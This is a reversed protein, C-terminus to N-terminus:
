IKIGKAELLEKLKKGRDVPFRHQNLRFDFLLTDDILFTKSADSNTYSGAVLVLLRLGEIEKKFPISFNRWEPTGLAFPSILGRYEILYQLNKYPEYDDKDAIFFFFRMTINRSVAGENCIKITVTDIDPSQVFSIPSSACFKILPEVGKVILIRSSDKVLKEIRKQATDYKLGYQALAEITERKSEQLRAFAISDRYNQTKNAISDRNTIELKNAKQTKDKEHQDDVEQWISLGIIFIFIMALIFGKKTLPYKSEPRFIQGKNRKIILNDTTFFVICAAFIQSFIIFWFKTM